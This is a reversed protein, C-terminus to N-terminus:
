PLRACSSTVPVGRCTTETAVPTVVEPSSGSISFKMLFWSGIRLESSSIRLATLLGETFSVVQYRCNPPSTWRAASARWRSWKEADASRPDESMFRWTFMGLGASACCTSEPTM